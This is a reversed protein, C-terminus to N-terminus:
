IGEVTPVAAGFTLSSGITPSPTPVPATGPASNGSGGSGASRSAATTSAATTAQVTEPSPTATISPEPTPTPTPSPTPTPEPTPTPTPEPSPAPTPDAATPRQTNLGGAAADAGSDQGMFRNSFAVLQQVQQGAALRDDAITVLTGDAPAAAIRISTGTLVTIAPVPAALNGFAWRWPVFVPAGAMFSDVIARNADAVWSVLDATLAPDIARNSAAQLGHNDTIGTLTAPTLTAALRTQLPWSRQWLGVMLEAGKPQLAATLQLEILKAILSKAVATAPGDIAATEAADPVTFAGSPLLAFLDLAGKRAHLVRFVGQRGAPLSLAFRGDATSTVPGAVVKHYVSPEEVTVTAGALVDPGLSVTGTLNRAANMAATARDPPSQVTILLPACGALALASILLWSWPQRAIQPRQSRSM